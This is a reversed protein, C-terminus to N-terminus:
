AREWIEMRNEFTDGFTKGVFGKREIIAQMQPLPSVVRVRIRLADLRHLLISFSGSGPKRAAILSIQCEYGNKALFSAPLWRHKTLGHYTGSPSGPEVISFGLGRYREREIEPLSRTQSLANELQEVSCGFKAALNEM